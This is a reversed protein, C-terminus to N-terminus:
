KTGGSGSIQEPPPLVISGTELLSKLNSLIQPWGGSVAGIFKSNECEISHTVTLKVAQGAAAEIEMTCHSWGEAKMEPMFENRWRIALRKGPEFEVIEGADAVRGDPFVLKWSGGAKWEAEPRIGFWYQQVFEATTLASWLRERTTRIYTVYVFRSEPKNSM